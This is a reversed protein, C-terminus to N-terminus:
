LIVATNNELHVVANVVAERLAEIPYEPLDQRTFGTIQGGVNMHRLFFEAAQDILDTLTGTLNKRDLYRGAGLDDLYKICVVESYPLHLQPNIGFLLLGVNTPRLEGTLPDRAACELQVLLDETREFRKYRRSSAARHALLQELRTLDLDALTARPCLATEWRLIGYQALHSAVEVDSMPFTKTGKRMPFTGGAQYLAGPNPPIEIIVIAADDLLWFQPEPTTLALQPRILRLADEIIDVTQQLDKVGAIRRSSEEIGFMVAGGLRRNAIGAIRYALEAPRPPNIKLEVLSTEGDIILQRLEADKAPDPTVPVPYRRM